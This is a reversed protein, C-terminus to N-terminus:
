EDAPSKPALARYKAACTFNCFIRGDARCPMEGIDDGCWDCWQSDPDRTQARDGPGTM